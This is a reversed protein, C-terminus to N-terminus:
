IDLENLKDNIHKSINMMAQLTLYYKEVTKYEMSNKFLNPEFVKGTFIRMYIKNHLIHFEFRYKFKNYLDLMETMVDATLLRVALVKDECEVDFKKEFESMDLKVRNKNLSNFLADNRIYLKKGIDKDLEMKGALGCFVTTYSTNGDEDKSERETHVEAFQITTKKNDNGIITATVMDESSYRDFFDRYEGELYESRTWGRLPEYKGDEFVNSIVPTIIKEKFVDSYTRKKAKTKGTINKIIVVVIAVMLIPMLIFAFSPRAVITIFVCLILIIIILVKRKEKKRLTELETINENYLRTYLNNFSEKM